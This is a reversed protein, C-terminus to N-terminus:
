SEKEEGKEGKGGQRKDDLGKRIRKRGNWKNGKKMKAPYGQMSKESLILLCYVMM